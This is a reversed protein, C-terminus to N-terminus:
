AAGEGLESHGHGACDAIGYAAPLEAGVVALADRELTPVLVTVEVDLDIPFAPHGVVKAQPRGASRWEGGHNIWEVQGLQGASLLVDRAKVARWRRRQPMWCDALRPDVTLVEPEPAAEKLCPPCVETGHKLPEGCGPCTHTDHDCRPCYDPDGPEAEIAKAFGAVLDPPGVPEPAGSRFKTCDVGVPTDASVLIAPWEGFYAPTFEDCPDDETTRHVCRACRAGVFTDGADSNSFPASM